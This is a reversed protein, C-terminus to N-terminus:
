IQRLKIQAVLHHEDRDVNVTQLNRWRNRGHHCFLDFRGRDV